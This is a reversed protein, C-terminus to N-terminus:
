YDPTPALGGHDGLAPVSAGGRRISLISSIMTVRNHHWEEGLRLATGGGSYFGGAVVTGAIRVCRIAENLAAYHRSLEIAVDAGRHHSATKIEYGVDCTAPDLTRDAGFQEALGRRAPYLDIADIWGAGELRALQVALLGIVGMGFIAVRDGVKVRADHVAQLAVGALALIIAQEPTVDAPLAEIRGRYPFNEPVFTHTERHPILMHVLDGPRLHCVGAGVETIRGVWEYGLAGAPAPGKRPLFLRLDPDFENDAFASTGRYLNMETGHSIGSLIGQGRVEDPQLPADEYSVLAVQRPAILRLERPM